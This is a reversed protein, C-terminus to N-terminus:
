GYYGVGRRPMEPRGVCWVGRMEGRGELEEEVRRFGWETGALKGEVVGGAYRRRLGELKGVALEHCAECRM